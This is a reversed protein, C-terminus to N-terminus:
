VGDAARKCLTGSVIYRDCGDLVCDVAFHRAFLEALQAAPMLGRSVKSASGEHHRNIRERSMGHAVTLRGGASLHRALCELTRAPDPFHPFANYVVASDFSHPFEVCEADGCLVQVTPHNSRAIRVMEPSIDIGVVQAGRALYYPFLVGTGCAVDLVRVGEKVGAADLVSSIIGDDKVMDADWSPACADFFEIIDRKNM